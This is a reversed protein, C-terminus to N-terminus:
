ARVAATVVRPMWAPSRWRVVLGAAALLADLEPITYARRASVLGDHHTVRSRGLAITTVWTAALPLLGRRLDNVVVGRRAVRALERLMVIADVGDLHHLLLSSHAVDFSAEPFPLARADAEVLDISPGDGTATRAVRLVEPNRDLGTTAWGARVFAAPMDARGTGVDLVRPRREGDLLTRIARMSAATGGPLRNLRALDTLNGDVEGPTLAGGDLLEVADARTRLPLRSRVGYTTAM